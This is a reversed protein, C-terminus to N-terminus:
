FYKNKLLLKHLNYVWIISLRFLLRVIMYRARPRKGKDFDERKDFRDSM